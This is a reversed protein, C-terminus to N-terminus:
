LKRLAKVLLQARHEDSVGVWADVLKGYAVKSIVIPTALHSGDVSDEHNETFYGAAKIIADSLISPDLGGLIDELARATSSTVWILIENVGVQEGQVKFYCINEDNPPPVDFYPQIKVGASTTVSYRKKGTDAEYIWLNKSGKRAGSVGRENWEAYFADPDPVSMREEFYLFETLSREWLLWGTRMDAMNNGSNRKVTNTRLEILEKYQQLVDRMADNPPIDTSSVRISRTASPHMLSTGAIELFTSRPTICLMKHEVGLGNHMIDIHLNSWDREPIGKAKCYVSSWDGEEFKRGMMLAVQTALLVKASKKEEANFASLIIGM